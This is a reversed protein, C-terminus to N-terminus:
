DEEENDEMEKMGIVKRAYTTILGISETVGDQNLIRMTESINKWVISASKARPMTPLAMMLGNRLVESGSRGLKLFAQSLPISSVTINELSKDSKCSGSEKIFSLVQGFKEQFLEPFVACLEALARIAISLAESVTDVDKMEDDEQDEEENDEPEEEEVEEEESVPTPKSKQVLSEIVVSLFGNIEELKGSITESFLSTLHILVQCCASIILPDAETQELIFALFEDVHQLTAQPCVGILIAFTELGQQILEIEGSQIYSTLIPLVHEVIQDNGPPFIEVLNNLAKLLDPLLLENDCESISSILSSYIDEANEPPNSTNYLVSCLASLCPRFGLNQMLAECIQGAYKETDDSMSEFLSASLQAAATVIEESDTQLNSIALSTIDGLMLTSKITHTRVLFEMSKLGVVFQSETENQFCQNIIEVIDDFNDDIYGYIEPQQIGLIGLPDIYDNSGSYTEYFQISLELYLQIIENPPDFLEPTKQVVELFLDSINKKTDMKINENALAQLAFGMVDTQMEEFPEYGYQVGTEFLSFLSDVENLNDAKPTCVRQIAELTLQPLWECSMAIELTHIDWIVLSFINYMLLRISVDPSAFLGSMQPLMQAALANIEEINRGLGEKILLLGSSFTSEQSFLEEGFALLDPIKVTFFRSFEEFLIEKMRYNQEARIATIFSNFTAEKFADDYQEFFLNNTRRILSVCLFKYNFDSNSLILQFFFPIHDPVLVEYLHTNAENIQQQDQSNMQTVFTTLFIQISDSM